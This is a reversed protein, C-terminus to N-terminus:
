LKATLFPVRAGLEIWTDGDLQITKGGLFVENSNFNKVIRQPLKDPDAECMVMICKAGKRILEVHGIREQYGLNNPDDIFKEHKTIRIYRQDEHKRFGDQWVRLFVTGDHRISGWSWRTNHLPAGLLEFFDSQTM